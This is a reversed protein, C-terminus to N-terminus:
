RERNDAEVEVYRVSANPLLVKIRYTRNSAQERTQASLVRGGTDRRVHVVAEDLSFDRQRASDHRPVHGDHRAQAPTLAVVALLAALLCIAIKVQWM